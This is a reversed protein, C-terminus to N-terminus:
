HTHSYEVVLHQEDDVEDDGEIDGEDDLQSDDDTKHIKGKSILSLREFVCQVTLRADPEGDWSDEITDCFDSVLENCRWQEKMMPRTNKDIVCIKMDDITPHSGVELEYPARYVDDMETGDPSFRSLQEWLVLGLAYIDIRLFSEAQFAVAGQLMEPAMYRKTGAQPRAEILKNDKPFASSSGFDSICCSFDSKVLVNRSKFDMHAIMPKPPSVNEDECHLYMLGEVMTIALRMLEEFSLVRSGLYDALSGFQHYETIIWYQVIGDESRKEASLFLLINDHQLNYRTFIDRETEWSSREHLPIIKVAVPKDNYMAKRVYRFQGRSIIDSLEIVDHQLLPSQPPSNLLLAANRAPQNEKRCYLRKLVALM